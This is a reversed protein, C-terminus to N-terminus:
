EMKECGRHWSAVIQAVRSVHLNRGNSDLWLLLRLINCDIWLKIMVSFFTFLTFYPTQTPYFGTDPSLDSKRAESEIPGETLLGGRERAKLRAWSNNAFNSM